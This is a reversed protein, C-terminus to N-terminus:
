SAEEKCEACCYTKGDLGDELVWGDRELESRLDRMDWSSRALATLDYPDSHGCADCEVVVEPDNVM